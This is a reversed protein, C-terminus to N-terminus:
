GKTVTVRGSHIAAGLRNMANISETTNLSRLVANITRLQTNRLTAVVNGNSIRTPIDGIGALALMASPSNQIQSVLADIEADTIGPFIAKLNQRINQRQQPSILSALGGGVRPLSLGKGRSATVTVKEPKRPETKKAQLFGELYVAENAMAQNVVSEFSSVSTYSSSQADLNDFLSDLRPLYATDDIGNVDLVDAPAIVEENGVSANEEEFTPM